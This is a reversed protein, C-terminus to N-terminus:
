MYILGGVAIALFNLALLSNRFLFLPYKRSLKRILISSCLAGVLGGVPICGNLIGKATSPDIDFDLINLMTAIDLQGFYAISYGFYFASLTINLVVLSIKLKSRYTQKNGVLPVESEQM